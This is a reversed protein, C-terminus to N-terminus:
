NISRTEKNYKAESAFKEFEFHWAKTTKPLSSKLIFLPTSIKFDNQALYYFGFYDGEDVIKYFNIYNFIRVYGKRVEFLNDPTSIAIIYFANGQKNKFTFKKELCERDSMFFTPAKSFSSIVYNSDIDGDKLEMDKLLSDWKTRISPIYIFDIITQLDANEKFVSKKQRYAEKVLPLKNNFDSGESYLDIILNEKNYVNDYGDMNWYKDFLKMLNNKTFIINKEFDSILPSDQKILPENFDIEKNLNLGFKSYTINKKNETNENNNENNNENENNNGEGNILQEDTTINTELDTEVELINDNKHQIWDNNHSSDKYYYYSYLNLLILFLFFILKFVKKTCNNNTTNINEKEKEKEKEYTSNNELLSINNQLIMSETNPIDSNKEDIKSYNKFGSLFVDM